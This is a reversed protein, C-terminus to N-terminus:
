REYGGFNAIWIVQATVVPTCVVRVVTGAPFAMSEAFSQGYPGGDGEVSRTTYRVTGAPSELHMFGSLYATATSYPNGKLTFYQMFFTKGATVTYTLVVQNSTTSTTNLTGTVLVNTKDDAIGLTTTTILRGSSDEPLSTDM